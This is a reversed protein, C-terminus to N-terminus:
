YWKSEAMQLLEQEIEGYRDVAKRYHREVKSVDPLSVADRTMSVYDGSRKVHAIGETELADGYGEGVYIPRGEDRAMQLAITTTLKRWPRDYDIAYLFDGVHESSRFFGFGHVYKEDRDQLFRSDYVVFSPYDIFVRVNGDRKVATRPSPLRSPPRKGSVRITIDRVRKATLEGRRVLEGYWGRSLFERVRSEWMRVANAEGERTFGGSQWSPNWKYWLNGIISGFGKRRYERAVRILTAGWEDSAKAVAEGKANLIALTVGGNTRPAEESRITYPEGDISIRRLVHPYDHRNKSVVARVAAIHDDIYKVVRSSKAGLDVIKGSYWDPIDQPRIRHRVYLVGDHVAAVASGDRLVVYGGHGQLLEYEHDSRRTVGAAWLSPNLDEVSADFSDSDHYKKQPNRADLFEALTMMAPEHRSLSEPLPTTPNRHRQPKPRRRM